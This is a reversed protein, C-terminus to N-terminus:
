GLLGRTAIADFLEDQTWGPRVEDALDLADELPLQASRVGDTVDVFYYTIQPTTSGPTPAVQPRMQERRVTARVPATGGTVRAAIAEAAKRADSDLM